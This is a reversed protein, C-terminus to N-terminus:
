ENLVNIEPKIEEYLVLLINDNVFQFEYIYLLKLLGNLREIKKLDIKVERTVSDWKFPLNSLKKKMFFHIGKAIFDVLGDAEYDFVFVDNKVEKIILVLSEIYSIKIKNTEINKLEINIHYYRNIFEQFEIIPIELRM